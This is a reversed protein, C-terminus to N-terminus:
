VIKNTNKAKNRFWPSVRYREEHYFHYLNDLFDVVESYGWEKGWQLLGKPYNVGNLVALELDKENCINKYITDAAENILMALIRHFIYKAKQEEVPQFQPKQDESYDFFGKGSKKGLQSSEVLKKQLISPQYRSDFYNAEWVSVTVAYNVDHGIYDMLTFPGMRFGGKEKMVWDIEGPTAIGEEAIRLAESYFPRAVKNVIFGPSDKVLVTVKGWADIVKRVKTLVDESTFQTHVIEVLAMLGPPNFFHIGLFREKFDMPQSISTVSLSSTNTALVCSKDVYRQVELFVKKKIELDEVVAEIVLECDRLSVMEHIYYVRSFAAKAEADTIKGKAALMNLIGLLRDRSKTISSELSDYIRVECGALTAVQAIGTGMAGAGIIGIIQM